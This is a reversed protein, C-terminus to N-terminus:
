IIMHIKDKMKLYSIDFYNIKSYQDINADRYYSENSLISKLSLVIVHSLFLDNYLSLLTLKDVPYLM